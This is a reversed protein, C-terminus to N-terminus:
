DQATKKTTKEIKLRYKKNLKSNTLNKEMVKLPGVTKGDLRSFHQVNKKQDYSKITSEFGLHLLVVTFGLVLAKLHCARNCSFCLVRAKRIFQFHFFYIFFRCFYSTFNYIGIKFM